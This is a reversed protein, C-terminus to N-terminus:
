PTAQICRHRPFESNPSLSILPNAARPNHDALVSNAASRRKHNGGCASCQRFNMLLPEPVSNSPSRFAISLGCPGGYFCTRYRKPFRAGRIRTLPGTGSWPASVAGSGPFCAHIFQLRYLDTPSCLPMSGSVRGDPSALRATMADHRKPPLTKRRKLPLTKHRQPPLDM